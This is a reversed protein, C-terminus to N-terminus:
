INKKSNNHNKDIVENEKFRNKIDRTSNNRQFRYIFDNQAIELILIAKAM